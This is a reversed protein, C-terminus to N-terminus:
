RLPRARREPSRANPPARENSAWLSMTYTWACGEPAGIRPSLDAPRRAKRTCPQGRRHSRCQRRRWGRRPVARRAPGRNDSERLRRHARQDPSRLARIDTTSAMMGLKRAARRFARGARLRKVILVFVVVPAVVFLGLIVMQAEWPLSLLDEMDRWRCAGADGLPPHTRLVM